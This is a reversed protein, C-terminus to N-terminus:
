DAFYPEEATAFDVEAAVVPEAAVSVVEAVQEAFVQVVSRLVQFQPEFYETAVFRLVHVPLEFYAPVLVVFEAVFVVVSAVPVFDTVFSVVEAVQLELVAVVSALVFDAVSHAVVFVVVSAVPVFDAVVLM